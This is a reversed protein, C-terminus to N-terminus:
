AMMKTLVSSFILKIHTILRNYNIPVQARRLGKKTLRSVATEICIRKSKHVESGKTLYIHMYIWLILSVIVTITLNEEGKSKKWYKEVM